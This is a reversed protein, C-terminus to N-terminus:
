IERGPAAELLLKTLASACHSKLSSSVNEPWIPVEVPWPLVGVWSTASHSTPRPLPAPQRRRPTPAASQFRPVVFVAAGPVGIVSM